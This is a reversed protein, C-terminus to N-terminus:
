KYAFIYIADTHAHCRLTMCTALVCVTTYIHEHKPVGTQLGCANGPTCSRSYAVGQKTKFKGASIM